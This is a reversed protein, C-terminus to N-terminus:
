GFTFAYVEVGPEFELRLRGAMNKELEALTYLQDQDVTIEKVMKGDVYVKVKGSETTGPNMVLYVNKAQFQMELVAGEGAVAREAQINWQGGFAWQNTGLDQALEYGTLTDPTIKGSVFNSIRAYGVYTEPTLNGTAEYEVLDSNEKDVENGAEKLLKEIWEATEDYQGEGFHTYRVCGNADVLYKAPWYRNKYNQWIVRDNDQVVPYKLDYKKLAAEVNETKKEFEFEPTHVGVIVLGDDAYQEQWDHLFPLTRICNICSYTWFDVLVVKGRLAKMTLPESNLWTGDNIIEPAQPYLGNCATADGAEDAGYIKMNLDDLQKDVVGLEELKTLGSGYQPFKDLVWTQFDKDYGQSIAIAVLIIVVGFFKQIKASNKLLFPVKQLLGRGGYIIGVMPISTGIAYSMTIFVAQLTVGTTAALTIVSALIPGACPTWVLGLSMGVFLGGWFGDGGAGKKMQMKGSLKSVQLELWLTFKPVLMSIGFIMIIVVAFKRLVEQDLGTSRVLFTLALTSVMFSFIFGLVIGFPRRKGGAASSSLVIPLVPLICPSLITVLGALFAFAVLVLM